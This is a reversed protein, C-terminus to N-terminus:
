APLLSELGALLPQLGRVFAEEPTTPDSAADTVGLTALVAQLRPFDDLSETPVDAQPPAQASSTVAIQRTRSMAELLTSGFVYGGYSQIATALGESAFGRDVFVRAISELIELIHPYRGGHLMLTAASPHRLWTRRISVACETLWDEWERPDRRPLEVESMIRETVLGLLEDRNSIRRYLNPQHIGLEDALRRTTLRDLGKTDIVRLAAEVIQDISPPGTTRNKATM